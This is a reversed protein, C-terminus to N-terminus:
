HSNQESIRQIRRKHSSFYSSLYSPNFHFHKAVEALGLPQDFHEHMYELLMKMNPDSRKGGDGATCEQVELMFQDLVQMAENLSSAGDVNKFYTYKSEELASSQVDMDALTITVNFILNGLFSKIEFVDAIYDRGLTLAHEKLYERASETRNRKM